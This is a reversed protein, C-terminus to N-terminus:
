SHLDRRPRTIYEMAFQRSIIFTPTQLQQLTVVDVRASHRLPLSDAQCYRILAAREEQVRKLSGHWRRYSVQMKLRIKLTSCSSRTEYLNGNGQARSINSSDWTNIIGSTEYATHHLKSANKKLVAM